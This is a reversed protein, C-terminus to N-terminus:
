SMQREKFRWEIPDIVPVFRFRRNDLESREFSDTIAIVRLRACMIYISMCVQVYVYVYEHMSGLMYLVYVYVYVHVRICSVSKYVYCVHMSVCLSVVFYVRVYVHM